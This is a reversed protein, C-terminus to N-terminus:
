RGAPRNRSPPTPTITTILFQAADDNSPVAVMFGSGRLGNSFDAYVAAGILQNGFVTASANIDLPGIDLLWTFAEGVAFGNFTLALTPAGDAILSHTSARQM